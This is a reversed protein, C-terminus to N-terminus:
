AARGRAVGESGRLACIAVLASAALVGVTNGALDTWEASRTTFVAQAVEVLAGAVWAAALVGARQRLTRVAWAGLSAVLFWMVVHVDAEGM